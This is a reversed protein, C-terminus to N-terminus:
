LIDENGGEEEEDDAPRIDLTSLVQSIHAGYAISDDLVFVLEPTFRLNVKRAVEGRLFASASKLGRKLEKEDVPGLASIHVKCWRLDASTDCRLVSLMVGRLRPDKANPLAQALCRMIEENIRANRTGAM